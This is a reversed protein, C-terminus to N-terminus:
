LIHSLLQETSQLSRYFGKIERHLDAMCMKHATITGASGDTPNLKYVSITQNPQRSCLQCQIHSNRDSFGVDLEQLTYDVFKPIYTFDIWVGSNEVPENLFYINLILSEKPDSSETDIYELSLELDTSGTRHSVLKRDGTKIYPTRSM